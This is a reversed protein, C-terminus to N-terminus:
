FPASIERASSLWVSKTQLFDLMGEWGNESAFYEGGSPEWWKGDAYYSYTEM